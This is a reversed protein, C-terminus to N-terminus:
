LHSTQMGAVLLQQPLSLLLTAAQWVQAAYQAHWHERLGEAESKDAQLANMQHQMNTFLARRTQQESLWQQSKQVHQSVLGEQIELVWLQVFSMEEVFKAQISSAETM